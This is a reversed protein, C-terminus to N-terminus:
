KKSLAISIKKEPLNIFEIDFPKKYVHKLKEYTNQLGYGTILGGPFDPGNDYIEIIVTQENEFIKIKIEGQKTLISIGHKVANEVLPQLLFRPIEFDELREDVDINYNLKEDFRNKEITLYLEVMEIESRITSFLENGKNINYRFLKSLSLAMNETKAADVYVLSAISNLANYLFHPNIRSQLVMLDSRVTLEKQRSLELEKEQLLGAIRTTQFRSYIRYAVILFAILVLKWTLSDLTIFDPILYLYLLQYAFWLCFFSVIFNILVSIWVKKIRDLITDLLLFLLGVFLSFPVFFVELYLIFGAEHFDGNFFKELLLLLFTLSPIQAILFSEIIRKIWKFRIKDLFHNIGFYQYLQYFVFLLVVCIVLSLIFIGTKDEQTTTNADLLQKVKAEGGSSYLTKLMYKDYGTLHNSNNLISSDNGTQNNPSKFNGLCHIINRKIFTKRYDSDIRTNILITMSKYFPFYLNSKRLILDEDAKEFSKLMEKDFVSDFIITLNPQRTVIKVKITELLGNLEEALDTIIKIDESAPNGEIKIRLDTKLLNLDHTNLLYSVTNRIFEDYYNDIVNISIAYGSRRIGDPYYLMVDEIWLKRYDQTKNLITKAEESLKNGQCPISILDSDHLITITFSEVEFNTDKSRAIICTSKQMEEKTIICKRQPFDSSFIPQKKGDLFYQPERIPLVAIKYVVRNVTIESIGSAQPTIYYWNNDIKEIKGKNFSVAMKQNPMDAEIKIKSRTYYHLDGGLIKVNYGKYHYNTWVTDNRAARSLM